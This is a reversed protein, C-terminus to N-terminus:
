LLRPRTVEALGYDVNGAAARHSWRAGPLDPWEAGRARELYVFAGPKLLPVLHTFVAEVPDSFPPDVFAIDFPGIGSRQLFSVADACVIEARAELTDSVSALADAALPDREVMVARSAGRSLAEFGLVGTGAFLDLCVAGPLYPHLWNFLTERVRDPTPRQRNGAPIAIRHRRWSGGIIRVSGPKSKKSQSRSM